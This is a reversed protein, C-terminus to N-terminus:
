SGRAARPLFRRWTLECAGAALLALVPVLPLAFRIKVPVAALAVLYALTFLALFAWGPARRACLAAGTLGALWLGYWLMRAPTELALLWSPPDRGWRQLEHLSREFGSRKRLVLDVLKGAQARLVGVVGTRRLHAFTRERARREREVPDASALWYDRDIDRVLRERSRTLGLEVNWWRNAALRPGHGRRANVVLQPALTALLPVAFALAALLAERGGGRRWAACALFGAILPGFPALTGKAFLALAFLVGAPVLLRKRGDRLHLLLLLTAGGFLAAHLVEPWLSHVHFGLWPFLGVLAAALLAAPSALGLVRGTAFTCAVLVALFVMNLLPVAPHINPAFPALVGVVLLPRHDFELTGPLLGDGPVTRVALELYHGEDGWYRPAPAARLGFLHLGVVLAVLGIPALHVRWREGATRPATESM